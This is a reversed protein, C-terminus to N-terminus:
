LYEATCRGRGTTRLRWFDAVAIRYSKHNRRENDQQTRQSTRPGSFEPNQLTAFCARPRSRLDVSSCLTPSHSSSQVRQMHANHEGTRTDRGPSKCRAQRVGLAM